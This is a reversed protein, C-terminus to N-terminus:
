KGALDVYGEEEGEGEDDGSGDWGDGKKLVVWSEGDGLESALDPIVRDKCQTDATGGSVPTTEPKSDAPQTSYAARPLTTLPRTLPLSRGAIGEGRQQVEEEGRLKALLMKSSSAFNEGEKEKEGRSEKAGEGMQGKEVKLTGEGAGRARVTHADTNALHDRLIERTTEIPALRIFPTAIPDTAHVLTFSADEFLLIGKQATCTHRD